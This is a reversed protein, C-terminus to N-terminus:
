RPMMFPWLGVNGPHVRPVTRVNANQPAGLFGHAASVTQGAAQATGSAWFLRQDMSKARERRMWVCEERPSSGDARNLETRRQSRDHDCFGGDFEIIAAREEFSAQRDETTSCLLATIGAKHSSLDDLIGQQPRSRAALLLDGGDVRVRVRVGARYAAKLAESATM